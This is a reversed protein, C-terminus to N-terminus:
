PWAPTKKIPDGVRIEGESLIQARLGAKHVLGQLTSPFSTKALHTCPECLRLGRVVIDGLYFNQGALDNLRVGRTVINRRAHLSTFALGSWTAFAEVNEQEILTLEFDPKQPNPSFTGIGLFYRDGELGQGPLARVKSVRLMESAPSAAILIERIEGLWTQANDSAAM